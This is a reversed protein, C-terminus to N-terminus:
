LLTMAYVLADERDEGDPYYNPRFGIENFGYDLYLQQAITNSARVELFLTEVHRERAISVLHDLLQRGYGQGQLQPHICINLLHAEGVATSMMAYGIITSECEAIVGVYGAQLCDRFIGRTWSHKYALTEVEMVAGLDPRTMERFAIDDPKIVASM